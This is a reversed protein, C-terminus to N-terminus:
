DADREREGHLMEVRALLNEPQFAFGALSATRDIGRCEARAIRDLERAGTRCQEGDVVGAPMADGPVARNRGVVRDPMRKEAVHAICAEVAPDDDCYRDVAVLADGTRQPRAFGRAVDHVSRTAGPQRDGQDTRGRQENGRQERQVKRASQRPGDVGQDTGGLPEPGAIEGHTGVWGTDVLEVVEAPGEVRGGFTEAAEDRPSRAKLASADCWSRVGSAPRRMWISDARVM